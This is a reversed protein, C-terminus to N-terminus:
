EEQGHSEGRRTNLHALRGLQAEREVAGLVLAHQGLYEVQLEGGGAHGLVDVRPGLHVAEELYKTKAM